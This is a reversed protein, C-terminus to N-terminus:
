SYKLRANSTAAASPWLMKLYKEACQQAHFCVSDYSPANRVRVEREATRFDGEARDVWEAVIENM